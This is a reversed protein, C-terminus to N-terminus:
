LLGAERLADRRAACIGAECAELTGYHMFGHAQRIAELAARVVPLLRATDCPWYLRDHACYNKPADFTQGHAEHHRAELADLDTM